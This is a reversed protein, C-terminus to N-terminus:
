RYRDDCRSASTKAIEEWLRLLAQQEMEWNFREQGLRWAHARSAALHDPRMLLRDITAALAVADGIKFLTMADGLDPALARHAPIDSAIIPLGSLLYSFLKNGLARANNESFGTEGSYGIDFQSGLREMDNPAELALLHLRDSVGYRTALARLVDAYGSATAGRLYLHPASTARAIAEVATELGRGAGITQSFWYLSPGTATGRLTPSPSANGRSLVNLVVKPRPISYTEAYADAIMPSAATVYAAGSLYRGEITRIIRKEVLHQRLDQVNGLHFDEADFAYATGYKRAARAAAPLAAVYHAIYLDAPVKAAVASLDPAAPAHAAQLIAVSNVGARVFATAARRRVTQILYRSRPAEIPGFPVHTVRWRPDILKQDMASAWTIYGGCVVSVDHNVEALTCAEKVLRPNTSLHGPSILCVRM